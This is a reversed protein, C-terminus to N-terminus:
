EEDSGSAEDGVSGEQAQDKAVVASDVRRQDAAVKNRADNTLVHLRVLDKVGQVIRFDHQFTWLFYAIAVAFFLCQLWYLLEMLEVHDVSDVSYWVCVFVLSTM